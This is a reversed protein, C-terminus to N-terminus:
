IQHEPYHDFLTGPACGERRRLTWLAIVYHYICGVEGHLMDTM